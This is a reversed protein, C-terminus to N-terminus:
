TWQNGRSHFTTKLTKRSLRSPKSCLQNLWRMRLRSQCRFSSRARSLSKLGDSEKKDNRFLVGRNTNDYEM